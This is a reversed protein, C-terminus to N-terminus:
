FSSVPHLHRSGRGCFPCDLEWSGTGLGWSGIDL